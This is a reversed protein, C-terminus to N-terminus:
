QLKFVYKGTLYLLGSGLVMAPVYFSLVGAFGQWWDWHPASFTLDFNKMFEAKFIEM